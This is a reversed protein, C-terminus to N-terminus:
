LRDSKETNLDVVFQAVQQQVTHLYQFQKINALLFNQILPKTQELEQESDIRLQKVQTTLLRLQESVRPSNSDLSTKACKTPTTLDITDESTSADMETLLEPRYITFFQSCNKPKRTGAGFHLEVVHGTVHGYSGIAKLWM